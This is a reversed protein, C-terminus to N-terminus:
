VLCALRCGCILFMAIFSDCYSTRNRKLSQRVSVAPPLQTETYEEADAEAKETEGNALAAKGASYPLLWVAEKCSGVYGFIGFM